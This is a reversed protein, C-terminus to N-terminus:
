NTGNNASFVVYGLQICYWEFKPLSIWLKPTVDLYMTGNAKTFAVIRSHYSFWKKLCLVFIM